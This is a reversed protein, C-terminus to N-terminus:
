SDVGRNFEFDNRERGSSVRAGLSLRHVLCRTPGSERGERRQDDGFTPRVPSCSSRIVKLFSSCSCRAAAPVPTIQMMDAPTARAFPRERPPPASGSRRRGATAARPVLRRRPWTIRDPRPTTWDRRRGARVDHCTRVAARGRRLTAVTPCPRLRPTTGVGAGDNMRAHRDSPRRARRSRPASTVPMPRPRRHRPWRAAQRTM